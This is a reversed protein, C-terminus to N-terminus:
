TGNRKSMDYKSSALKQAASSFLEGSVLATHTNEIIAWDDSPLNIRKNLKHNIKKTRRQTLCGKYTPNTLIRKLMTVSWKSDGTGRVQSPTPIGESDLRRAASSLGPSQLYIKFIREVYMATNEDPVLLGKEVESKKYGYPAQSGIFKGNNRRTDLASRVKKSIDRAYMDNIVSRFPTMEDIDQCSDIGDTVAIYRINKAPFYRELYHGTLIYDRGLRSLDKTIVIGIAGSEIDELMKNFGPRDFSLGSYGDDIYESIDTLNNKKCYDRLFSRQNNISESEGGTGDDRSLRLYLATMKMNIGGEKGDATQRLDTNNIFIRSRPFNDLM